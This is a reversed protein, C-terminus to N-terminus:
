HLTEAILQYSRLRDQHDHTNSTLILEDASTIHQLDLLREHVTKPSGVIHTSTWTDIFEREASTYTYSAAEEPSPLTSPRGNRLRLFSLKAPGHLWHAHEDTDACVVAVGIMAYPQSLQASPQFHQRYIDLAALTNQPMFHHAFSFPLGLQAALRASFDSSGLLWIAPAHGAGPVATIHPFTGAFYALLEALQKPLDDASPDAARRLAYATIQDTGPARGIGLDIRGPHLAELMGFQEAIVLPQHNPLMVGGSGIRLTTTASALHAILVAPASSAIGPMNHHEAVWHRHYGLREAHRALDLSNQLAEAASSGTSIPALDLVSLPASRLALM